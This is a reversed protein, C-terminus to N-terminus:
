IYYDDGYNEHLRNGSSYYYRLNVSIMYFLGLIDIENVVVDFKSPSLYIFPNPLAIHSNLLRTENPYSNSKSQITLIKTFLRLCDNIQHIKTKDFSFVEQSSKDFTLFSDYIKKVATEIKNSIEIPLSSLSYVNQIVNMLGQFFNRRCRYNGLFSLLSDVLLDLIYTVVEQKVKAENKFSDTISHSSNSFSSADVVSTGLKEKVNDHHTSSTSNTIEASSADISLCIIYTDLFSIILKEYEDLVIVSENLFSTLNYEHHTVLSNSNIMTM